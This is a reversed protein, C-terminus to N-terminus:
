PCDREVTTKGMVTIGKSEPARGMVTTGEGAIAFKSNCALKINLGGMVNVSTQMCYWGQPNRLDIRSGGMVNVGPRILVLAPSTTIEDDITDQGIGFVKVSMALTKYKPNAGFPHEGFAGLCSAIASEATAAHGVLPTFAVAAAIAGSAARAIVNSIRHRETAVGDVVLKM